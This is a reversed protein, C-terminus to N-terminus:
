GLSEAQAEESLYPSETATTVVSGFGTKTIWITKNEDGYREM